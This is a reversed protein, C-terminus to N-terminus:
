EVRYILWASFVTFGVGVCTLLGLQFIGPNLAVVGLGNLILAGIVAFVALPVIAYLYPYPGRDGGHEVQRNRRLVFVSFVLMTLGLGGSCSALAAETSLGVAVLASPLLSFGLAMGSWALMQRLALRDRESFGHQARRQLTAAVGSFGALAVAIEAIVEYSQLEM